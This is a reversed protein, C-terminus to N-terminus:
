ERTIVEDLNLILGTIATYAAVDRVDLREDRPTSGVAVLKKAAEADKRYHDLHRQLGAKLVNLEQAGPRRGV